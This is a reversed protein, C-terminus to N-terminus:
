GVHRKWRQWDRKCSEHYLYSDLALNLVVVAVIGALAMILIHSMDRRRGKRITETVM